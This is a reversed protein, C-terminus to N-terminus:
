DGAPPFVYHRDFLLSPIRMPSELRHHHLVHKGQEVKLGDGYGEPLHQHMVAGLLFVAKRIFYGPLKTNSDLRAIKKVLRNQKENM